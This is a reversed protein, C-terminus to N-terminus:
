GKSDYAFLYVQRQGIQELLLRLDIDGTIDVVSHSLEIGQLRGLGVHHRDIPDAPDRNDSTVVSKWIWNVDVWWERDMMFGLEHEQCDNAAFCTAIIRNDKHYLLVLDGKKIVKLQNYRTMSPPIDWVIVRNQRLMYKWCESCYTLNSNVLYVRM